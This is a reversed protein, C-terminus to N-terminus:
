WWLDPPLGDWGCEQLDVRGSEDFEVGELELLSRQTGFGLPFQSASIRGTSSIVRHWPVVSGDPLSHLAWGVTRAARPTELIGAIQGYTAVQGPPIRCVLDWVRQFFDAM